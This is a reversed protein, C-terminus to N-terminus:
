CLPEIAEDAGTGGSLQVTAQRAKSRESGCGKLGDRTREGILRREFHAISGFLHFVLEGAAAIREELPM